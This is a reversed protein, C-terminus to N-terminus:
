DISKMNQVYKQIEKERDKAYVNRQHDLLGTAFTVSRIKKKRCALGVILMGLLAISTLAAIIGASNRSGEPGVHDPEDDNPDFNPDKLAISMTQNTINFVSYYNSIVKAGLIM